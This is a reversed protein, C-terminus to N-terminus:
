EAVEGLQGGNGDGGGGGGLNTDLAEKKEREKSSREFM